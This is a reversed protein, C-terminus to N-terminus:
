IAEGETPTLQRALARVDQLRYLRYRNIPHRHAVFRGARDWRRLTAESVGLLNATQKITLYRGRPPAIPLQERMPAHYVVKILTAVRSFSQLM